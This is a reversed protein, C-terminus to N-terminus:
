NVGIRATLCVPAFRTQRAGTAHGVACTGRDGQGILEVLELETGGALREAFCLAGRLKLAVAAIRPRSLTGFRM